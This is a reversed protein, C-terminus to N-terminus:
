METYSKIRKQNIEINIAENESDESSSNDIFDKNYYGSSQNSKRKRKGNDSFTIPLLINSENTEFINQVEFNQNQNLNHNSKPKHIPQNEKPSIDDITSINTISINALFIIYICNIALSTYECFTLPINEHFIPHKKYVYIFPFVYIFTVSIYYVVYTSILMAHDHDNYDNRYYLSIIIGYIIFGFEIFNLLAFWIMSKDYWVVNFLSFLLFLYEFFSSKYNNSYKM